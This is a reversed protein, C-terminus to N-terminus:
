PSAAQLVEHLAEFGFPKQLFNALGKGTFRLLAEQQSFGSMLVVRM